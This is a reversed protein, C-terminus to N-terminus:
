KDGKTNRRVISGNVFQYESDKSLEWGGNNPMNLLNEAHEVSLTQEYGWQPCVLLVGKSQKKNEAM